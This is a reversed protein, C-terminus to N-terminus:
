FAVHKKFIHFFIKQTAFLHGCVSYKPALTHVPAAREIGGNVLYLLWGIPPQTFKISRMECGDPQARREM